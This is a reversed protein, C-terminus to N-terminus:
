NAQVPVVQEIGCVKVGVGATADVESGSFEYDIRVGTPALLVGVNRLIEYMRVSVADVIGLTVSSDQNDHYNIGVGNETLIKYASFVGVNTGDWENRSIAMKICLRYEDDTMERNGVSPKYDLTRKIGVLDGLIDLQAGAANDVTFADDFTEVVATNALGAELMTNVFEMYKERRSNKDSILLSYEGGNAKETFNAVVSVNSIPMKFQDNQIEVEPETTYGLFRYGNVANVSLSVTTGSIGSDPSAIIEGAGDMNVSTDVHYVIRELNLSLIAYGRLSFNSATSGNAEQVLLYLNKGEFISQADQPIYFLGTTNKKNAALTLGGIKTKGGGSTDYCLYFIYSTTTPKTSIWYASGTSLTFNIYTPVSGLPCKCHLAQPTTLYTTSGYSGIYGSVSAM